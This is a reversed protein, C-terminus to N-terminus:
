LWTCQPSLSEDVSSNSKKAQLGTNRGFPFIKLKQNLHRGLEKNFTLLFFALLNWTDEGRAHPHKLIMRPALRAAETKGVHTPTNRSDIYEGENYDLRGWTRPPTERVAVSVAMSLRDEGRAHPHKRVGARIRGRHCTKGVHTPTNRIRDYLVVLVELRGWTRPPTERTSSSSKPMTM